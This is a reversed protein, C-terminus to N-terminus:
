NNIQNILCFFCFIADEGVSRWVETLLYVTKGSSCEAKDSASGSLSLVIESFGEVEM